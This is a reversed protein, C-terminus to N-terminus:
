YAIFSENPLTFLAGVKNVKPVYCYIAKHKDDVLLSTMDEWTSPTYDALADKWGTCGRTVAEKRRMQEAEWPDDGFNTQGSPSDKKATQGESFYTLNLRNQPDHHLETHNQSVDYLDHLSDLTMLSELRLATGDRDHGDDTVITTAETLM